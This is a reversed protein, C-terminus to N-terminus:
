FIVIFKINLPQSFSKNYIIHVGHFFIVFSSFSACVLCLIMLPKATKRKPTIHIYKVDTYRSTHSANGVVSATIPSKHTKYPNHFLDETYLRGFM